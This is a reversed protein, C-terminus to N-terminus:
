DVKEKLLRVYTADGVTFVEVVKALILRILVYRMRLNSIPSGPHVLGLQVAHPFLNLVAYIHHALMQNRVMSDLKWSSLAQGGIVALFAALGLWSHWHTLAGYVFAACLLGTHRWHARRYARVTCPCMQYGEFRTAAVTLGHYRSVLMTGALAVIMLWVHGRFMAIIAIAFLAAAVAFSCAGFKNSRVATFWQRWRASPGTGQGHPKASSM